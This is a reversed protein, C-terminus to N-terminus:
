GGEVFFCRVVFQRGNQGNGMGCFSFLAVCDGIDAMIRRLCLYRKCFLSGFPVVAGMGTGSVLLDLIGNGEKRVLDGRHAQSEV